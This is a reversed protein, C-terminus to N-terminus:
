MNVFPPARHATVVHHDDSAAHPAQGAGCHEGLLPHLDAHHLLVVARPATQLREAAAPADEVRADVVHPAQALPLGHMLIQLVEAHQGADRQAPEVGLPEVEDVELPPSEAVRQAVVVEDLPQRGVERGLPAANGRICPQQLADAAGDGRLHQAPPLQRGSRGFIQADRGGRGDVLQHAVRQQPAHQGAAGREVAPPAVHRGEVVVRHDVVRVDLPRGAEGAPRLTQGVRQRLHEARRAALQKAVGAGAPQVQAAPADAGHLEVVAFLLELCPAGAAVKARTSGM